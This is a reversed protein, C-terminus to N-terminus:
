LEHKNEESGKKSATGWIWIKSANHTKFSVMVMLKLGFRKTAVNQEDTSEAVKPIAFNRLTPGQLNTGSSPIRPPWPFKLKRNIITLM